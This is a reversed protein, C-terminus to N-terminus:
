SFTDVVVNAYRALKSRVTGVESGIDHLPSNEQAVNFYEGLVARVDRFFLNLNERFPNDLGNALNLARTRRRRAAFQQYTEAQRILIQMVEPSVPM